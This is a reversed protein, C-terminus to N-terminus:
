PTNKLEKLPIREPYVWDPDKELMRKNLMNAVVSTFNCDICNNLPAPNDMFEPRALDYKFYFDTCKENLELWWELVPTRHRWFKSGRSVTWTIGLNLVGISSLYEMGELTYEMPEMGPVFYSTVRGKGCIEVAWKLARIWNDRGQVKEKGPCIARFYDPHWVELDYIPGSGLRHSGGGDEYLEQIVERDMPATHNLCTPVFDIGLADKVAKQGLMIAKQEHPHPLYGGTFLFHTFREEKVAEQITEVLQDYSKKMTIRDDKYHEETWIISCFHCNEDTKAYACYPSFNYVLCDTGRNAMIRGMNVGDSTKKGYYEPRPIHFAEMVFKGDKDIVLRGDQRSLRYGSEPDERVGVVTGEPLVIEEPLLREKISVHDWEFLWKRQEKYETGVGETASDDVCIGDTLLGLKIEIERGLQKARAKAQSPDAAKKRVIAGNENVSM